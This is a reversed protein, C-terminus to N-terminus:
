TTAPQLELFLTQNSKGYTCQELPLLTWEIKFDINDIIKFPICHKIVIKPSICM